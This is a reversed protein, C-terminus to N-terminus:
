ADDDKSASAAGDAPAAVAGAAGSGNDDDDDDDAMMKELRDDREKAVAVSEKQVGSKALHQKWLFYFNSENDRANKLAVARFSLICSQPVRDEFMVKHGYCAVFLMNDIMCRIENSLLPVQVSVFDGENAEDPISFKVKMKQIADVDEATKADLIVKKFGGLFPAIKYFMAWFLETYPPVRRVGNIFDNNRDWWNFKIRGDATTLSADFCRLHAVAM